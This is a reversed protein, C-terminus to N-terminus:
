AKVCISAENWGQMWLNEDKAYDKREIEYAAWLSECTDTEVSNEFAKRGHSIFAATMEVKQDAYFTNIVLQAEKQLTESINWMGCGVDCLHSPNNRIDQLRKIVADIKNAVVPYKEFTDYM